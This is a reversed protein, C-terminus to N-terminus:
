AKVAIIVISIFSICYLSLCILNYNSDVIIGGGYTVVVFGFLANQPMNSGVMVKVRLRKVGFNSANMRAGLEITIFTQDFETLFYGLYIFNNCVINTRSEHVSACVFVRSVYHMRGNRQCLCLVISNTICVLLSSLFLPRALCREELWVSSSVCPVSSQRTCTIGGDSKGLSQALRYDRV